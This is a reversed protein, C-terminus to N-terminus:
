DGQAVMWADWEVAEGAAIFDEVNVIQRSFRGVDLAVAPHDGEDIRRAGPRHEEYWHKPLVRQDPGDDYVALLDARKGIFLDPKNLVEGRLGHDLELVCSGEIGTASM